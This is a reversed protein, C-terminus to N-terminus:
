SFLRGSGQRESREQHCALGCGMLAQWLVRLPACLLLRKPMWSSVCSHVLFNSGGKARLVVAISPLLMTVVAFLLLPGNLLLFHQGNPGGGSSGGPPDGCTKM